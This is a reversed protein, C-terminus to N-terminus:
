HYRSDASLKDHFQRAIDRQPPKDGARGFVTRLRAATGAPHPRKTVATADTRRPALKTLKHRIYHEPNIGRATKATLRSLGCTSSMLCVVSLTSAMLKAPAAPVVMHRRIVGQPLLLPEHRTVSCRSPALVQRGFRLDRTFPLFLGAH